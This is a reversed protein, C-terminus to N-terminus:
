NERLINGLIKIDGDVEEPVKLGLIECVLPYVHINEFPEITLGSKFAPGFAYFIAHIDQISPDFGHQGIEQYKGKKIFGIQRLSKFYWGYEPVILLDGLRPNTNSTKYFPNEEIKYITFHNEKSKLDNYVENRDIGENMYLHVIAGVNVTKYKEEDEISEIPMLQPVPIPAMGHDSVFIVNIPLGTKELGKFLQGLTKDLTELKESLEKDSNPGVRHGVDDMDSFYATILHPRKDEPLEFWNIIQEVRTENSISGDYKYHYTPHYGQIDAESGVFFFSATVMGQKAANVWLPTGGYWSGDEVIERNGIKYVLDKEADYFSNNVLGHNEPYMGTAISYHNPFTKSPFCSIMSKASVGRAIKESLNKPKFRQTYDWRYGDLSILLVYPKDIQNPSNKKVLKSQEIQSDCSSILFGLCFLLLLQPKNM